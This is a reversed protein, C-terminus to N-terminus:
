LGGVFCGPNFIGMPDFANKLRRMLKFAGAPPQDFFSVAARLGPEISLLRAHGGAEAAARRLQAVLAVVSSREATDALAIQAIGSGVHARFHLSFRSLCRPLERPVVSLQLKVAADPLEVDRIARYLAQADEGKLLVAQSIAKCIENLQYDVESANGGVGAALMYSTERAMPLRIAPSLLDLHLLPLANHLRWGAEFAQAAGSHYSLAIAYIQPTPRVKFTAETIVGLTGFSGIMVKMLDYGAVNKVVRGGGRVLAAGHGGFQVGILYDRVGGSSLRLPGGQAAGLMAGIATVDPSPPDVPLHQGHTGLTSNLSGLTLGAGVVVTMDDPEYSVVDSLRALSVGAPVAATRLYRMTRSAGIPAMAIRDRECKRVIERVENVDAPEVIAEAAQLEVNRPIRVRDPGLLKEFEGMVGSM